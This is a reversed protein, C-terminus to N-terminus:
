IISVYTALAIVAEWTLASGCFGVQRRLFPLVGSTLEWRRVQESATPNRSLYWVPSMPIGRCLGERGLLLLIRSLNCQFIEKLSAILYWCDCAAPEANEFAPHNQRSGVEQGPVDPLAQLCTQADRQPSGSADLLCLNTISHCMRWYM